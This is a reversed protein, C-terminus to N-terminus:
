IRSNIKLPKMSKLIRNEFKRIEYILDILFCDLRSGHGLFFSIEINKSIKQKYLKDGDFSKASAFM